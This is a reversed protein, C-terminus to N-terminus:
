VAVSFAAAASKLESSETFKVRKRAPVTLKAGTRPNRSERASAQKVALAGIGPLAFRGSAKLGNKITGFLADVAKGAAAKSIGTNASLSETLLTKSM